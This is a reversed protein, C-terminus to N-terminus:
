NLKIRRNPDFYVHGMILPNFVFYQCNVIQGSPLECWFHNADYPIKDGFDDINDEGNSSQRFMRLKTKVNKTTRVYLTCFPKSKKLSDIQRDNLVYNPLEFNIKKYNVLYRLVMNTDLSTLYKGGYKVYYANDIKRIEFNREPKETFNVNVEAIDETNYAFINSCQWQLPDATFRPDIIGNLAKIEAIVPLDSKGSERSEILMYSGHHDSTAGGIYWTKNWSGNTFFEVKKGITTIRNIVTKLANEPVYGKFRINYAADLINFVMEKQVCNGEGDLWNEGKQRVITFQRGDPETIIVKDISATDKIEFNFAALLEDSTGKKSLLNSTFIGLGILIGLGIVITIVKKM